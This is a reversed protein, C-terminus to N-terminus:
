EGVYRYAGKFRPMWDSLREVTVGGSKEWTHIFDGHGLAYGVHFYPQRGRQAPILFLLVSGVSLEAPRWLRLESAFIAAISAADSPSKYDPLQVGERRKLEMLLGYCDYEDPGRGGYAFPRGILDSWNCSDVVQSVRIGVLISATTM